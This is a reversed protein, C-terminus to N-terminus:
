VVKIHVSQVPEKLDNFLETSPLLANKVNLLARAAAAWQTSRLGQPVQTLHGLVTPTANLPCYREVNAVSLGPFSRFNGAKVVDLLTRKVPSGVTCHLYEILNKTSPLDYAQCHYKTSNKYPKTTPVKSTLPDPPFFTM